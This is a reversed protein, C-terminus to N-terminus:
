LAAKVPSTPKARPKLEGQPNIAVLTPAMKPTQSLLYTRQKGHPKPAAHKSTTVLRRTIKPTVSLVHQTLMVHPKITAHRSVMLQTNDM